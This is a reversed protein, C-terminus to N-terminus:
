RSADAELLQAATQRLEAPAFPKRMVHDAREVNHPSASLVIIPLKAREPDARLRDILETGDMVPMMVDTILLDVRGESIRQLAAAGHHAELVDHGALELILRVMGRLDPEDDVILIRAV